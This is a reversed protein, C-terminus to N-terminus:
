HFKIASKYWSPFKDKHKNYFWGFDGDLIYTDAFDDYDRISRGYGQVLSKITMLEYWNKVLEMKSKIYNDGMYPFPMKIVIQFRSYEGLLDIGEVFSPSLIVTPKDSILHQKMIDIRDNPGHVLLRNSDNNKKIYSAIEFTHCHIIGKDNKHNKLIENVALSMKPLTDDIAKKAMRGIPIYHIPRNEVPFPSEMSMYEADNVPIGNFRCFDEKNLITSSMLLVKDASNYLFLKNYIGGHLPKISVIDQTPSISMVWNRENYFELFLKINDLQRNFSERKQILGKTKHSSIDDGKLNILIGEIRGIESNLQNTLKNKIWDILDSKTFKSHVPWTLKLHEVVFYKTLQISVFETVINEMNHCEDIVLLSRHINKNTNYHLFYHLNTLSISSQEFLRKKIEYTCQYNEKPAVANLALGLDCTIGGPRHKCTYNQKAYISALDPFERVYQDQLLKQTTLIMSSPKSTHMNAKFYNSITVAIASKGIGVPLNALFYKKDSNIFTNLIKNISLTQEKRPEKFPFYKIWDSKEISM